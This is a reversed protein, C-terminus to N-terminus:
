TYVSFVIGSFGTLKKKKKEELLERRPPDCNQPEPQSVNAGHQQEWRGLGRWGRWPDEALVRHTTESQAGSPAQSCPLSALPLPHGLRDWSFEVAESTM